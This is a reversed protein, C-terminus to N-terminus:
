RTCPRFAFFPRLFTLDAGCRGIKLAFLLLCRGACTYGRVSGARFPRFPRFQAPFHRVQGGYGNPWWADVEASAPVAIKLTAVTEGPGVVVAASAGAGLGAFSATLTAASAGPPPGKRGWLRASVTVSWGVSSSSSSGATHPSAGVPQTDVVVDRLLAVDYGMIRPRVIIATTGTPPAFDWGFSQQEKRIFANISLQGQFAPGPWTAPCVCAGDACSGGHAVGCAAEAALSAPVPGTFARFTFFPRLFTLDAGYEAWKSRLWSM